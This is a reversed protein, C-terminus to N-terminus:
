GRKEVARREQYWQIWRRQSRQFDKGTLNELIVMLVEKYRRGWVESLASILQAVARERDRKELFFSSYFLRHAAEDLGRRLHSVEQWFKGELGSSFGGGNSFQRFREYFRRLRLTGEQLRKLSGYFHGGGDRSLEMYARPLVVLEVPELEIDRSFKRGRVRVSYPRFKGELRYRVVVGGLRLFSRTDIWFDSWWEQGVGLNVRGVMPVLHTTRYRRFNGGMDGYWVTLYIYGVVRNSPPIVEVEGKSVNTLYVRLGILEGLSYVRRQIRFEGRLVDRRVRREALQIRLRVIRKRWPSGVEVLDLLARLIRDAKRFKGKALYRKVLFLKSEMFIREALEESFRGSGVTDKKELSDLLIQYLYLRERHWERRKRIQPIAAKGLDLIKQCIRLAREPVEERELREMLRVLRRRQAEGLGEAEAWRWWFSLVLVGILFVLFERCRM